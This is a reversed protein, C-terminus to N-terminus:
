NLSTNSGDQTVRYAKALYALVKSFSDLAEETEKAMEKKSMRMLLRAYTANIMLEVDSIGEPSKAQLEKLYSNSEHILEKYLIDDITTLLSTHLLQLQSVTNMLLKLHGLERVGETEMDDAIDSYWQVVEDQEAEDDSQQVAINYRVSDMSFDMARLIDEVQYMYLLYEVINEKEKEQAIFM